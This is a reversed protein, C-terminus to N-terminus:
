ALPNNMHRRETNLYTAVTRFPNRDTSGVNSGQKVRQKRWLSDIAAPVCIPTRELQLRM